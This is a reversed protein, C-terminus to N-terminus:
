GKIRERKKCIRKDMIKRGTRNDMIKRGIRKKNEEKRDM